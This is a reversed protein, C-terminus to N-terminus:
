AQTAREAIEHREASFARALDFRQLTLLAGRSYDNGVEHFRRVWPSVLRRLYRSFLWIVATVVICGLGFTPSLRVLVATLFLISVLAPLVLGVITQTMLDIREVDRVLTTHLAGRGIAHLHRRDLRLVRRVLDIRLRTVVPKTMRLTVETAVFALIGSLAAMALALLFTRRGFGGGSAVVANLFARLLLALYALAVGKGLAAGLSVLLLPWRRRYSALYSRWEPKM